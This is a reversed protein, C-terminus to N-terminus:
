ATGVLDTFDSVETETLWRPYRSMPGGLVNWGILRAFQTRVDDGHCRMWVRPVVARFGDSGYITTLMASRAGAFRQFSALDTRGVRAGWGADLRAEDVPFTTDLLLRVQVAPPLRDLLPELCDAELGVVLLRELGACRALVTDLALLPATPQTAVVDLVPFEVGLEERLQDVAAAGGRRAATRVFLTSASWMGLEGVCRRFAAALGGLGTM